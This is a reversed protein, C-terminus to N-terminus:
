CIAIGKCPYFSALARLAEVGRLFAAGMAAEDNGYYEQTEELAFLLMEVIPAAEANTAYLTVLSTVDNEIEQPTYVGENEYARTLRHTLTLVDLRAQDDRSPEGTNM